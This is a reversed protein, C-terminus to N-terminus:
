EAPPEEPAAEPPAAEAPPAAEPAAEADAPAPPEEGPEAPPPEEAPGPGIEPEVDEVILDIGKIPDDGIELEQREKTRATTAGIGGPEARTIAVAEITFAGAGVPATIEWNGPEALFHVHVPGADADATADHLAINFGDESQGDYTLIGSIRVGQGEEVSFHPTASRGDVSGEVAFDLGPLAEDEVDVEVIEGHPEDASPGNANEDIYALIQIEGLDKPAIVSWPGGQELIEAHLLTPEAGGGSLIEIRLQGAALLEDSITITGSLEVGEGDALEFGLPEIRM